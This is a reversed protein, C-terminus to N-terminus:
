CSFSACSFLHLFSKCREVVFIVLQLRLVLRQLSLQVNSSSLNCRSLYTIRLNTDLSKRLFVTLIGSDSLLSINIYIHIDIHIHVHSKLTIIISAALRQLCLQMNSFLKCRSLYIISISVQAHYCIPLSYCRRGVVSTVLQLCKCALNPCQSSVVQIQEKINYQYVSACSIMHTVYREQM